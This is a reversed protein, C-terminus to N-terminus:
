VTYELPVDPAGQELMAHRWGRVSVLCSEVGLAFLFRELILAGAHLTKERGPEIGVLAARESVSLECLREMARSVEEYALTAGHVRDPDWPEIRDRVTVLNTASAGIAISAGAEGPRFRVGIAEDVDRAARIRALGDPREDRFAGSLLALTGMSFSRLFRVSWGCRAAPDRAGVVCETSQGGVDIVSLVDQGDALRDAAAALFGLTAEQEGSLVALPTGQDRARRLFDEANRAIRLAMTGAAEVKEAGHSTASDLGRRMAALTRVQAAEDLVGSEALGEGLGTVESSEFVQRWAGGAREGVVTLVSNSGVDVVARRVVRTYM